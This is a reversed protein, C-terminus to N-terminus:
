NKSVQKILHECEWGFVMFSSTFDQNIIFATLRVNNSIASETAIIAQTIEADYNLNLLKKEDVDIELKEQLAEPWNKVTYDRDADM